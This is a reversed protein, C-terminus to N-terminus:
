KYLFTGFCFHYIIDLVKFVFHKGVNDITHSFCTVSFVKPFYFKVQRLAAENVAAGDKMAALLGAPKISFNVALCELLCQALEENKLSKAFIKFRILRQQLNWNGDIFRVIIALAEGLRTSGDFIVSFSDAASLESKLTEKEKALVTPIMESLHSRSTIRHGYKELFPRILDVKSLPIGATLCSEVLEFRYVRMEEPLTEGKPNNRHDNAILLKAISQDKMRDAQFKTKAIEHKKSKIHKKITSEKKSVFENCANCQLTGGVM